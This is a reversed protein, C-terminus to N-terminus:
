FLQASWSATQTTSEPPGLYGHILDHGWDGPSPAIKPLCAGGWHLTSPSFVILQLSIASAISISNPTHVQTAGFFWTNTPPGPDAHSPAIKLTTRDWQFHM